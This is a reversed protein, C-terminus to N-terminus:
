VTNGTLVCGPECHCIGNLCEENPGICDPSAMCARNNERGFVAACPVFLLLRFLKMKGESDSTESRRLQRSRSPVRKREPRRTFSTTQVDGDGLNQRFFETEQSSKQAAPQFTAELTSCGQRSLLSLRRWLLRCLSVRCLSMRCLSVRCLSM